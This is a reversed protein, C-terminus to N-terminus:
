AKKPLREISMERMKANAQRVAAKMAPDRAAAQARMRARKEAERAAAIDTQSIM